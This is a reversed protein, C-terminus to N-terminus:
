FLPPDEHRQGDILLGKIGAAGDAGVALLAKIAKDRVKTELLAGTGEPVFYREIGFRVDISEDPSGAAGFHYAVRGKILLEGDDIRDPRRPSVSRVQWSDDVSQRLTVYAIAGKSLGDFSPRGDLAMAKIPTLDYGLTVYDGRFLDRPDVPVVPLVIEKGDRLLAQRQAIITWLVATQVVAAVGLWRWTPGFRWVGITNSM